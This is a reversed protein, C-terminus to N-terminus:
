SIERLLQKLQYINSCRHQKNKYLMMNLVTHLESYQEPLEIKLTQCHLKAWDIYRRQKFQQQNLWELWIIGLAYIDSKFSKSEAHFLEPAMYRPTATNPVQIGINVHYTQEFDILSAENISKRFHELKLDGHIYGLEHLNGVVDLSLRLRLYIDSITLQSPVQEYLLPVHNIWLASEIVDEQIFFHYYPNLITFNCVIKHDISELHNLQHYINLEHKFSQTYDLNSQKLQLKLWHSYDGHQILYIRRGFSQSLISNCPRPLKQLTTM